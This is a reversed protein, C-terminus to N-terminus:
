HVSPRINEHAMTLTPNSCLRDLLSNRQDFPEKCYDYTIKPHSLNYALADGKQQINMKTNWMMENIADTTSLQKIGRPDAINYFLPNADIIKDKRPFLCYGLKDNWDKPPVSKAHVRESAFPYKKQLIKVVNIRTLPSPIKVVAHFHEGHKKHPEIVVLAKTIRLIEQLDKLFDERHMGEPKQPFTILYSKKGSRNKYDTADNYFESFNEDDSDEEFKLQPPM